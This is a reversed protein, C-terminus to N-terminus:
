LYLWRDEEGGVQVSRRRRRREPIPPLVGSCVSGSSNSTSTITHTETNSINSTNTNSKSNSPIRLGPLELLNQTKRDEQNLSVGTPTCGPQSELLGATPEEDHVEPRGPREEQEVSSRM